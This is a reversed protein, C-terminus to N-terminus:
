EAAPDRLCARLQGSRCRRKALGGHLLAVGAGALIGRLSFAGHGCSAMGHVPMAPVFVITNAFWILDVRRHADAPSHIAWENAVSSRPSSMFPGIPIIRRAGLRVASANNNVTAATAPTTAHGDNPPCRPGGCFSMAM